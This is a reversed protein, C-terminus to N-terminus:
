CRGRAEGAGGAGGRAAHLALPVWRPRSGHEPQFLHRSVHSVGILVSALRVRLAWSEGGLMGLREAPLQALVLALKSASVAVHQAWEAPWSAAGTHQLLQLLLYDAAEISAAFCGRPCSSSGCGALQTALRLVAEAAGLAAGLAAPEACAAAGQPLWDGLGHLANEVFVCTLSGGTDYGRQLAAALAAACLGVAEIVLRPDISPAAPGAPQQQQQLLHWVACGTPAAPKAMARRLVVALARTGATLPTDAIFPSGRSAAPQGRQLQRLVWALSASLHSLLREGRPKDLSRLPAGLLQMSSVLEHWSKMWATIKDAAAQEAPLTHWLYDQRAAALEVLAAHTEADDIPLVPGWNQSSLQGLVKILVEWIDAADQVVGACTHWSPPCAHPPRVRGGGRMM